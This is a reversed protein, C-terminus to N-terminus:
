KKVLDGNSNFILDPDTQYRAGHHEIGHCKDCLLELNDWALAIGPDALNAETLYIKHHVQAAPEGCRECIWFKSRGYADRTEQWAKSSYFKKRAKSYYYKRKGDKM